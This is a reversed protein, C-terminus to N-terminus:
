CPVEESLVYVFIIIGLIALVNDEKKKESWSHM